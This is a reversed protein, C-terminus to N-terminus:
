AIRAFEGHLKTAAEAYASHAEQETDFYGLHIQRCEKMIQAVWRGNRKKYCCGKLGNGVPPRNASNQANTALRLNILRNDSRNGNKHDIQLKPFEGYIFLWALRHAMYPRDNIVIRRYGNDTTGAITGAVRYGINVKRTFVGTEPDYDLLEKLRTQTIM